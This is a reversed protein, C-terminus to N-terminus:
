RGQAEVVGFTLVVDSVDSSAVQVKQQAALDGISARAGSSSAKLVYTGPPIHRIAFRGTEPDWLGQGASYGSGDTSQVVIVRMRPTIETGAPVIVRGAVTVGEHKTIQFDVGSRKQGVAVEITNGGSSELSGPYYEPMYRRDWNRSASPTVRVYYSGAPLGALRYEGLDSSTGGPGVPRLKREGNVEDYRLAEVRAGEVPFGDDDELRGSIVAQPTLEIRLNSSDKGPTVSAPQDPSLYGARTVALSYSGAQPLRFIFHGTRDSIASFRENVTAGGFAIYAGGLPAGTVADFIFGEVTQASLATSLAVLLLLPRM